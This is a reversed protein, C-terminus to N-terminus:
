ELQKLWVSKLRQLQRRNLNLPLAEYTNELFHRLRAPAEPSYREALARFANWDLPEASLLSLLDFGDKEGKATGQREHHAFEKMLLLVELKPVQFGERSVAQELVVEAPIGPHSFHPVYIEVDFDGYPIEYKKLRENKTLPYGDRLRGLTDYDVIIDIDKSKLTHAYLYVAWGGILVFPFQRRLEQLRQWSKETVLDHWFAM